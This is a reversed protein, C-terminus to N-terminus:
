KYALITNWKMTIQVKIHQQQPFKTAFHANPPHCHQKPKNRGTEKFVASQTKDTGFFGNIFFSHDNLSPKVESGWAAQVLLRLAIDIHERSHWAM